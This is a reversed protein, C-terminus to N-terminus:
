SLDHVRLVDKLLEDPDLFKESAMTSSFTDFTEQKEVEQPPPVNYTYTSDISQLDNYHLKFSEELPQSQPRLNM